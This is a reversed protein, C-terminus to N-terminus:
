SDCLRARNNLVKAINPHDMLALAQREAEFRAIVQRSDMGPKIIKLAVMRQVPRTQEAMSVVGMDGEGIQQLLKYPGIVTGPGEIPGPLTKTGDPDSPYEGTMAPTIAPSALFSDDQQHRRLLNEVRQRLAPDGGCARDLFAAQAAPEVIDMAEVFITQEQMETM